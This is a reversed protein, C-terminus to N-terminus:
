DHHNSQIFYIRILLMKVMIIIRIITIIIAMIIIRLIIRIITLLKNNHNGGNENEKLNSEVIQSAPFLVSECNDTHFPLNLSQMAHEGISVWWITFVYNYTICSICVELYNELEESPKFICLCLTLLNWGRNVSNPCRNNTLQKIIQCYVENQFIDAIQCITTQGIHSLRWAMRCAQYTMDFYDSALLRGCEHIAKTLGADFDKADYSDCFDVYKGLSLLYCMDTMAIALRYHNDQIENLFPIYQGIDRDGLSCCSM